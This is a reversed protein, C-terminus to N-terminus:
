KVTNEIQEIVIEERKEDRLRTILYWIVFLNIVLILVRIWTFREYIEYIEIPVFVATAVATLFEAWRKEFWLGIGETFDLAAYLFSGISFLILKNNDVGALKEMIAHIYRNEADINHRAIFAAFWEAVDRNLLTLLKIGIAVALLGKIVKWGSILHITWHRQKRTQNKYRLHIESM